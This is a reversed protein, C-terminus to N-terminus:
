ANGNRMKRFLKPHNAGDFVKLADLSGPNAYSDVTARFAFIPIEYVDKINVSLEKLFTCMFTSSNKKEM